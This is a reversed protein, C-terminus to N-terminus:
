CSKGRKGKQDGGGRELRKKKEKGGRSSALGRKEKKEEGRPRNCVEGFVIKKAHFGKRKTPTKRKPSKFKKGRKGKRSYSISREPQQPKETSAHNGRKKTMPTKKEKESFHL